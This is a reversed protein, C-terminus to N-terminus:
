TRKNNRRNTAYIKKDYARELIKPKPANVKGTGFINRIFKGNCIREQQKKLHTLGNKPM